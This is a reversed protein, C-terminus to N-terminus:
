KMLCKKAVCPTYLLPQKKLDVSIKWCMKEGFELLDTLNFVRENHPLVKLVVNFAKLVIQYKKMSIVNLLPVLLLCASYM